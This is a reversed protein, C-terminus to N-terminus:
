APLLSTSLRSSTNMDLCHESSTTHSLKSLQSGLLTSRKKRMELIPTQQAQQLLLLTINLRM